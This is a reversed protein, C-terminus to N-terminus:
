SFDAHLYGKTSHTEEESGTEAVVQSQKKASLFDQNLEM